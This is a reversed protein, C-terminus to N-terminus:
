DTSENGDNKWEVEKSELYERIYPDALFLRKLKLILKNHLYQAHAPTCGLRKGIETFTKPKDRKM